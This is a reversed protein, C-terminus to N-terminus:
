QRVIRWASSDLTGLRCKRNGIDAIRDQLGPRALFQALTVFADEGSSGTEAPLGAAPRHTNGAEEELAHLGDIDDLSGFLDDHDPLLIVLRAADEQVQRVRRM